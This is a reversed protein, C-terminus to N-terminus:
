YVTIHGATIHVIPTWSMCINKIEFFFVVCLEISKRQDIMSQRKEYNSSWAFLFHTHHVSYQRRKTCTRTCFLNKQIDVIFFVRYIVSLAWVVCVASHSCCSIFLQLGAYLNQLRTILLHLCDPFVGYFM